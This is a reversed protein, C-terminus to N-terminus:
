NLLFIIQFAVIAKINLLHGLIRSFSHLKAPVCYMQIVIDGANNLTDSKDKFLNMQISQLWLKTFNM